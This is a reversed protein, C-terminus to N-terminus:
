NKSSLRQVHTIDVSRNHLSGASHLTYKRSLLKYNLLYIYDWICTILVTPSVTADSNVPLPIKKRKSSQKM